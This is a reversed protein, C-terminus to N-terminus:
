IADKGQISKLINEFNPKELYEAKPGKSATSCSGTQVYHIGEALLADNVDGWDGVVEDAVQCDPEIGDFYDGFDVANRTQFNIASVRYDCIQKPQMGIPKGCTRDGIVTVDVFPELSNIVLESSSCSGSTTLVVVKDLNLQEIGAGLSFLSEDNKFSNTSNFTYKVFIEDEVNTGAMQTALQNAVSVLGGGNYRLDLILEDVEDIKFQDFAANLEDPSIAQFSNFVLYGLKADQDSITIDKTQKALVTNFNIQGKSMSGNITDGAPKVFRIDVSHGDENPGFVTSWTTTGANVAAVIDAVSTDDIATILDGRRLGMAAASGEDYVYRIRLGEYEGADNTELGYSFGYGFFLGQNQSQYDEEPQAYSFRDKSNRLADLAAYIDAYSAPAFNEDLEDNWLYDSQMFNFLKQNTDEVGCIEIEEVSPAEGGGCGVLLTAAISLGILSKKM